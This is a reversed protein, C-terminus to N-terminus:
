YHRPRHADPLSWPEAEMRARFEAEEREGATQESLSRGWLLYHLGGVAAIGGGILLPYLFFGGTVLVLFLLFGGGALVAFFITLFTERRRTHQEPDRDM